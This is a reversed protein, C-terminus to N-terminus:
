LGSPKIFLVLFLLPVFGNMRQRAHVHVCVCVCVCVCRSLSLSLNARVNTTLILLTKYSEGSYRQLKLSHKPSWGTVLLLMLHHHDDHDDHCHCSLTNYRRFTILVPIGMTVCTVRYVRVKDYVPKVDSQSIYLYFWNNDSGAQIM